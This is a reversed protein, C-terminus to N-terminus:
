VASKDERPLIESTLLDIVLDEFDSDVDNHYKKSGKDLRKSLIVLVRKINCIEDKLEDIEAKNDYITKKKQKFYNFIYAGISSVVLLVSGAIIEGLFEVM